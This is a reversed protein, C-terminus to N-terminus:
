LHICQADDLKASVEASCDSMTLFCSEGDHVKGSKCGKSGDRASKNSNDVCLLHIESKECWSRPAGIM